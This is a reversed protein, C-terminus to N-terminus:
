RRQDGNFKIPVTALAITDLHVTAAGNVLTSM